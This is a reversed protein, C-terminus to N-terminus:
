SKESLPAIEVEGSRVEIIRYAVACILVFINCGAVAVFPAQPGFSDYLRGGIASLALIGFGGCLAQMGFASGRIKAPAEQALLVQSGLQASSLGMGMCFLAPLASMSVINDTLAVWGYGVSSILFGLILLTLKDVKDGIIGFVPAWFVAAIQALGAVMGARATAEATTLDVNTAAQVVWLTLFLTVISMDARATFASIYSLAIRVNRAAMLGEAMLKAVSPKESVDVPKGPKLGFMVLAAIGAIGAAALYSLRGAWLESAGQGAFIEPLQTLGTFFLVSGVGNLFFAVGTLKGRSDDHAYDAVVAALNMSTAAVGFAFILRIFTLVLVSNAFGYAAYAVAMIGFGLVYVARRGVRDSFAGWWGICGLLIIEQWFQLDGSVRGFEGESVGLNVRLVYPTLAILYTFMGISIFAAFLYSYVHRPLVGPALKIPGITKCTETM